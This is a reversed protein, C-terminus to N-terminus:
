TASSLLTMDPLRSARRDFTLTTNCGAWQSIAAILADAFDGVGSQVTRVAKFVEDANQVVLSETQLLGEVLDAVELAPLGYVRELVWVTEALTVLSIFGPEEETFRQAIRRVAATQTPDDEIFLRVVINADLGTM